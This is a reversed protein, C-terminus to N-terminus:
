DASSPQEATPDPEKMPVRNSFYVLCLWAALTGGAFSGLVIIRPFVRIGVLRNRDDQRTRFYLSSGDASFAIGDLDFVETYIVRRLLLDHSYIRLTSSDLAAINKSDFSVVLDRNDSQPFTKLHGGIGELSWLHLGCNDHFVLRSESDYNFVDLGRVDHGPTELRVTREIKKRTTNPSSHKGDLLFAEIYNRREDGLNVFLALIRDDSSLLFMEISGEPGLTGNYIVTGDLSISTTGAASGKPSRDIRVRGHRRSDNSWHLTETEETVPTKIMGLEIRIYYDCSTTLCPLAICTILRTIFPLASWGQPGHIIATFSCAAIMVGRASYPIEEDLPIAAITGVVFAWLLLPWCTTRSRFHAFVLCVGALGALCLYQGMIVHNHSGLDSDAPVLLPYNALYCLFWYLTLFAFVWRM